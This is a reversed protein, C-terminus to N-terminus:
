EETEKWHAAEVVVIEERVHRGMGGFELGRLKKKEERAEKWVRFEELWRELAGL